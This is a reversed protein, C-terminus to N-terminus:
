AGEMPRVEVVCRPRGDDTFLKTAHLEAVQADDRYLLGACSDLCSRALKDTDPKTAKYVLGRAGRQPRPFYFVLSVSVAGDIPRARKTHLAVFAEARVAERWAKHRRRGVGKGELVIAKGTRRNRGISKSGQPAPLGLVTFHFSTM